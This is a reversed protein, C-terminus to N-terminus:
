KMSVSIKPYFRDCSFRMRFNRWGIVIAFRSKWIHCFRKMWDSILQWFSDTLECVRGCKKIKLRLQFVKANLELGCDLGYKDTPFNAFVKFFTLDFRLQNILLAYHVLKLHSGLLLVRWLNGIFSRISNNCSLSINFIYYFSPTVTNAKVGCHQCIRINLRSKTVNLLRRACCILEIIKTHLM